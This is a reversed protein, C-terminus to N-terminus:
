KLVKVIHNMCKKEPRLEWSFDTQNLKYFAELTELSFVPLDKGSFFFFIMYWGLMLSLFHFYLAPWLSMM